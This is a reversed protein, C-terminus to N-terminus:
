LSVYSDIREKVFDEEMKLYPLYDSYKNFALRILRDYDAKKGSLLKSKRAVSFLLLPNAYTLDVIDINDVKFVKKLDSLLSLLDVKKVEKERVVAIDTDSEKHLAGVARSGHLLILSLGHKKRVKRLEDKYLSKM